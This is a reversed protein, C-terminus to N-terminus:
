TLTAFPTGTRLKTLCSSVFSTNSARIYLDVTKLRPVCKPHTTLLVGKDGKAGPPFAGQVWQHPPQNSGLASRFLISFDFIRSGGSEFRSVRLRGARLRVVSSPVNSLTYTPISQVSLYLANSLLLNFNRKWLAPPFLQLASYIGAGWSTSLDV